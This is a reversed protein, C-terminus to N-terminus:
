DNITGDRLKGCDNRAPVSAFRNAIWQVSTDASRRGISFHDGDKISLYRLPVSKQRCLQQAFYYTVAPAVIPDASGQAILIPVEFGTAAVSNSRLLEAWPKSQSIDVNAMSRTLRLLGIKTRLAVPETSVCNRALRTVMDQGVPNLITSLPIDYLNSWSAGSYATLLARIAPNTSGTLNAKLDTPPAAAIVGMLELEPAYRRSYQGTWLAAHGGQSEGWVVYQRGLAGHPLERAAKVSDLVAQASDVGILYPHPGPTGLGAYDTAVIAYGSAIMQSLGAVTAFMSPSMSPACGEAVGFTGHAWAVIPRGQAPAPTLPIIVVGTVEIAQGKGSLSRYKIRYATAGPPSLTMQASSVLYPSATTQAFSPASTLATSALCAILVFARFTNMGLKM